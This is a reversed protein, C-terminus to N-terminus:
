HDQDIVMENNAPNVDYYFNENLHVKEVNSKAPIRLTLSEQNDKWLRINFEEEFDDGDAYLITLQFPAPLGGINQISVVIYEGIQQANKISLDPYGYSFFCANWFWNLNEDEMQNIFYFFDYPTPHKGKWINMFERNYQHLKKTGILNELGDMIAPGKIYFNVITPMVKMISSTENMLPQTDHLASFYNFSFKRNFIGQAKHDPYANESLFTEMLTTMTEDWWGYKRENIGMMFPYYNHALEHATVMITSTSDPTAHNNALMPFEMGGGQTGSFSIHKFYPYPVGPFGISFVEVSNKAVELVWDFNAHGDAYATQVWCLKSPNPNRAAMGEWIYHDSTGWAFDPVNKAEFKWTTKTGDAERFDSVDIIKVPVKSIKSVEVRSLINESFIEDMNKHRGTAWINYQSPLTIEVNYNSFDNYNEPIGVYEDTDWGFIDDYVAAQPFWYAMFFSTSDITGSRFGAKKPIPTVFDLSIFASSDRKIGHPLQLSMNTGSIQISSEPIEKDNFKVNQIVVGDHLLSPDVAMQRSAGKKYVNQMLKFIMSNLSDPSNNFYTLSLHGSILHTDPDFEAKIKYESRNQWYNEGPIGKRSRSGSKYANKYEKSEFLISKQGFVLSISLSVISILLLYKM